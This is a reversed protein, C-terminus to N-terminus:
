EGGAFGHPHDSDLDVVMAVGLVVGVKYAGTGLSEAEDSGSARIVMTAGRSDCRAIHRGFTRYGGCHQRIKKVGVGGMLTSDRSSVGM